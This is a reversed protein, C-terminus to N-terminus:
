PTIAGIGLRFLNDITWLGFSMISVMVLVVLTQAWIQPMTPWSVKGWETQVGKLYAALGNANANDQEAQKKPKRPSAGQDKQPTTVM